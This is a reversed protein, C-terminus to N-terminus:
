AKDANTSLRKYVIMYNAMTYFHLKETEKLKYMHRMDQHLILHVLDSWGTLCVFIVLNKGTNSKPGVKIPLYMQGFSDDNESWNKHFTFLGPM